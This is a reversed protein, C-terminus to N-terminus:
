LKIKFITKNQFKKYTEDVILCLGVIGIIFLLGMLFLTKLNFHVEQEKRDKADRITLIISLIVAIFGSGFWILTLILWINMIYFKLTQVGLHIRVM